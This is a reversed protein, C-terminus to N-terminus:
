CVSGHIDGWATCLENLRAHLEKILKNIEYAGFGKQERLWPPGDPCNLIFAAERKGDIVHVHAPNHDNTRIVVRYGNWKLVNPM